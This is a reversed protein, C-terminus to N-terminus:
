VYLLKQMKFMEVWKHNSFSYNSNNAVLTATTSAVGNAANTMQRIINSTTGRQKFSAFESFQKALKRALQLITNSNNFLEYSYFEIEIEFEDEDVDDSNPLFCPSIEYFIKLFHMIM